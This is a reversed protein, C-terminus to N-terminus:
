VWYHLVLGLLIVLGAWHNLKFAEFCMLPDRDKIMWQHYGFMVAVGAISLYYILSLGALWGLWILLGLMVFQLLGIILRDYDAFLVATSKIGVKRDDERDAMAYMTDYILTWVLTIAFVLWAQYPIQNQVAAYAMPVAWAFAAGLFLQPWHTFRKTFPYLMALAVAGLSLFITLPNLLLVLSFGIFCLLVFLGLAQKATLVGTALPRNCTRSVEGDWHRDAYDNIVCGASRMIIAGLIFVLLVLGPPKGEAALWLAWLAPWLVLYIGIPKDLRMLQIYALWKSDAPSKASSM